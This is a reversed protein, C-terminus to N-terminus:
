MYYYRFSSLSILLGLTLRIHFFAPKSRLEIRWITAAIQVQMNSSPTRDGYRKKWQLGPGWRVCHTMLGWNITGAMNCTFGSFTSTRHVFTVSSLCSSLCVVSRFFHTTTSPIAQALAIRGLLRFLRWAFYSSIYCMWYIIILIIYHLIIHIHVCFFLIGLRLFTRTEPQLRCFMLFPPPPIKKNNIKVDDWTDHLQRDLAICYCQVSYLIV